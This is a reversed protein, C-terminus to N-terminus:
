SCVECSILVTTIHIDLGNWARAGFQLGYQMQRSFRQSRIGAVVGNWVHFRNSCPFPRENDLRIPTKM